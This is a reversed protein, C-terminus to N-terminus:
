LKNAIKATYVIDDVSCGRSLDFVNKKLGQIIPGIAKYGALREVLKYSINGSNLDPFILVNADGKIIKSGKKKAIWPIIASDVQLEGDIVLNKDMKKAIKVAKRIRDLVGDKASGKTSYSLLAIKPKKGTIRKYTKSSDISIWALDLSDPEPIVACDAFLFKKNGKIMLFAGSAKHKTKLLQLAPRLLRATTTSAGGIVADADSYILHVMSFYERKKILEEAQKLTIKNKRLKYLRKTYDKIHEKIDITEINKYKKPLKGIFIPKAIREDIIRKMAKLIRDENEFFIIKRM